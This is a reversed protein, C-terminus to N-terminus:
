LNDIDKGKKSKGFEHEFNPLYNKIRPQIQLNVLAQILAGEQTKGAEIGKLAKRIAEM